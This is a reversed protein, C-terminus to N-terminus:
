EDEQYAKPVRVLWLILTFERLLDCFEEGLNAFHMPDISLLRPKLCEKVNGIKMPVFNVIVSDVFVQHEKSILKM